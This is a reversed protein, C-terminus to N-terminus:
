FSHCKFFTKEQDELKLFLFLIGESVASVRPNFKLKPHDKGSSFSILLTGLLIIKVRM